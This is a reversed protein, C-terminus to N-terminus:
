GINNVLEAQRRIKVTVATVDVGVNEEAYAQAISTEVMTKDLMAVKTDLVMSFCDRERVMKVATKKDIVVLSKGKASKISATSLSSSIATSSAAFVDISRIIKSESKVSYLTKYNIQRYNLQILAYFFIFKSNKSNWLVNGYIYVTYPGVEFNRWM